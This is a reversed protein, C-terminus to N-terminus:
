GGILVNVMGTVIFGGHATQDGLRAAPLGCIIVSISAKVIIDPPGACVCL